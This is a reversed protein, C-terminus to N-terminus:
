VHECVWVFRIFNHKKSKRVSCYDVIKLGADLIKDEIDDSSVLVVKDAIRKSNRIIITQTDEETQSLIGYPLDVIAVDYHEQVEQIDGTTVKPSYGFHELNKRAHEAVKDIIEHGVIDYGAYFGELLLTGVGCCPDIIRKSFDANGGINVLVKALHIGLSSSYSHPKDNHTRWDGENSLLIGFYWNGNYFSLGYVVKPATFSPGSNFTMGIDKCLDRRNKYYPDVDELVLYQVMFDKTSYPDDELAKILEDFTTTKHIVQLRNKIFPSISPMLATNTVMAKNEFKLDFLARLELACLEAEYEQYNVNYIYEDSMNHSLNNGGSIKYLNYM